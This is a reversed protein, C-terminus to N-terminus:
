FPGGVVMKSKLLGPSVYQPYIAIGTSWMTAGAVNPFSLLNNTIHLLNTDTKCAVIGCTTRGKGGWTTGFRQVAGNAAVTDSSDTLGAGGTVSAYSGPQPTVYLLTDNNSIVIAINVAPSLPFMGEWIVAGQNQALLAVEPTGFFRITESARTVSASTTLLVSSPGASGSNSKENQVGDVAIVDGNTVIRFGVSLSAITQAPIKVRVWTSTNCAGTIWDIFGGSCDIRTWTTGGDMTMDIEGVGTIRQVYASQVSLQSTQSITQLITGNGASATMQTASLAAGDIGNVTTAETINTATWHSLDRNWLVVNTAAKPEQLLGRVTTSGPEGYDVRATNNTASVLLGSSNFYNGPSARTVIESCITGSKYNCVYAPKPTIATTQAQSIAFAVGGCRFLFLFVLFSRLM